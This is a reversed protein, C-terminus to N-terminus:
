RGSATEGPAPVTVLDFFPMYKQFFGIAPGTMLVCLVTGIGVAVFLSGLFVLTLVASSSVVVIDFVLKAKSMPWGAKAAIVRVLSDPPPLVLDSGMIIRIGLSFVLASFAMLPIGILMGPPSIRLISSFLDILLGFVYVAPIQLVTMVTLRRQIALQALFCLAHFVSSCMGFSLPTLLSGAYSITSVPAVGIGAKSSLAIGFTMVLLGMIYFVIRKVMNRTVPM